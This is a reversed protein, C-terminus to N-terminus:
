KLIEELLTIIDQPYKEEESRLMEIATNMEYPPRYPRYSTIADIANAVMVVRANRCIEDGKLGYPYGSGDLREHHQMIIDIYEQPLNFRELSSMGFECHRRIVEMENDTLTTKKEIISKPVFLMGVDHMLAGLGLIRLDEDSYGIEVAIMISIMAVNISHTYIWEEYNSLANIYIWWPEGKSEFLLTNLTEYPKKLINNDRIHIKEGLEKLIPALVDGKNDDVDDNSKEFKIIGINDLRAKTKSTVKQGKRLLLMGNTDYIDHLTFYESDKKFFKNSM